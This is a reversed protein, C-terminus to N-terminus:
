HSVRGSAWNTMPWEGSNFAEGCKRIYTNYNMYAITNASPMNGVSVTTNTRLNTIQGRELRYLGDKDTINM